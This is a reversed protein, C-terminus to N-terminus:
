TAIHRALHVLSTFEHAVGLDGVSTRRHLVVRHTHTLAHPTHTLTHTIPQSVVRTPNHTNTHTLPPPLTTSNNSNPALLANRDQEENHVHTIHSAQQTGWSTNNVHTHPHQPHRHTIHQAEQTHTHHHQTHQQHTHRHIYHHQAAHFPPTSGHTIKYAGTHSPTTHTAGCAATGEASAWATYLSMSPAYLRASSM